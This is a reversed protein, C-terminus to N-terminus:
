TCNNYPGAVAFPGGPSGVQWLCFQTVYPKALHHQDRYEIRGCIVLRSTQDVFVAEHAEPALPEKTSIWHNHVLGPGIAEITWREDPKYSRKDAPPDNWGSISYDMMITLDLAPTKGTNKLDIRIPIPFHTPIEGNVFGIHVDGTPVIWPRQDLHMARRSHKLNRGMAVWQYYSAILLGFTFAAVAVGSLGQIWAAFTAGGSSSDCYYNQTVNNTSTTAQAEVEQPKAPSPTPCAAADLKSNNPTATPEPQHTNIALQETPPTSLPTARLLLLSLLPALGHHIMASRVNRGENM